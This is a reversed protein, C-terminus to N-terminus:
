FIVQGHGAVVSGFLKSEHFLFRELNAEPVDLGSGQNSRRIVRVLLRFAGTPNTTCEEASMSRCTGQCKTDRITVTTSWLLAYVTFEPVSRHNGKEAM